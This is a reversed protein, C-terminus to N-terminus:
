ALRHAQAFAAAEARSSLALKGLINSLHRKVTPISIFLTDAIERNSRGVAVLRLVELERRTLGHEAAERAFTDPAQKSALAALFARAEEDTAEPTLSQGAAWAAAFRDEGLAARADAIAREFTYLEPPLFPGGLAIARGEAAGLLRAAEEPFGCGAALVAIGATRVPAGAYDRAAEGQFADAFAAIAGGTDGRECAVLGSFQLASPLRHLEGTTRILAIAAEVHLKARILDGQGYAATGLADLMVAVNVENGLEHFEALSEEFFPEAEKYRGLYLLVFGIQGKMMAADMRNELTPDTVLRAVAQAEELLELAREGDGQLGALTGAHGLALARLDVPIPKGHALGQELVRRGEGFTSLPTWLPFLRTAMRLHREIDGTRFLWALTARLNDREAEILRLRELTPPWRPIPTAAEIIADYYNAHQQRARNEEDSIALQELGYERVTELMLFRPKGDPGEEQRLLSQDMLSAIGEFPEMGLDGLAYAVAEAAELTCGGVFVALRRFLIREDPTLLDHSWAITDRVTQQRAPLDYGGGTLLPLRKELRALLASPPLVKTRAAALEIALPLGDLRRCIEAITSVNEATLVFDEKLAHARAAFFRVSETQAADEVRHVGPAAVDMPPVPHEHEASLRIRMRSTVLVNLGPCAGLLSAVVPAAEAVQEFNDLLLLSRNDGLKRAIQDLLTDGRSQHVGLVRAITSAVLTPDAIPSLGVFWVSDSFPAVLQAAALALRTKGVGGPGTLTLLRVDDRHLLGTIMAIERERGILPTLPLPLSGTSEVPRGPLPILRPPDRSPRKLLPPPMHRLARYRALDDPDIRFVGSHKAAPLEGRAIARRITREHVGLDDAAERASLTDPPAADHGTDPTRDATRQEMTSIADAIIVVL